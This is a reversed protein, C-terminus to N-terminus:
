LDNATIHSPQKCKLNKSFIRIIFNKFHNKKLLTNSKYGKAVMGDVPWHDNLNMYYPSQLSM